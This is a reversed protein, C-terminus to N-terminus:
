DDNEEEEQSINAVDISCDQCKCLHLKEKCFKCTLIKDM